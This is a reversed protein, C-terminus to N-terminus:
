YTWGSCRLLQRCDDLLWSRRLPFNSHQRCALQDISGSLYLRLHDVSGLM